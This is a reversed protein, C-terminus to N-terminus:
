RRWDFAATLTECDLESLAEYTEQASEPSKVAGICDSVSIAGDAMMALTAERDGATCDRPLHFSLEKLFASQYPVPVDDPYSGQIIYRSRRPADDNWPVDRALAIADALVARNGTVDVVIDAGDPLLPRLASELGSGCTVAEIGASRAQRVRRDSLDCAVVRCGRSAYLRACIQGLVGLGIVAVVDDTDALPVRVGHYAIGALHALSADLLPLGDPVRICADAPAIAHSAHGGWMLNLRGASRTGNLYVRAGGELSAGAGSVVVIGAMAYGPVYPFPVADPQKGALCRLETGPSVCTYHAEVLVEGVGPERLDFEEIGVEWVSRHVIARARM